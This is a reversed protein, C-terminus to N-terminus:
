HPQERGVGVLLRDVEGGVAEIYERAADRRDEPKQSLRAWTEPTYSFRTLYLAMTSRRGTTTARARGRYDRIAPACGVNTTAEAQSGRRQSLSGLPPSSRRRGVSCGLPSRTSRTPPSSTRSSPRPRSGTFPGSLRSRIRGATRTCSGHSRWVDLM